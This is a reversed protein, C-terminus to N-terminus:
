QSQASQRHQSRSREAVLLLSLIIIVMPWLWPTNGTGLLDLSDAYLLVGVVIIFLSSLYNRSGASGLTFVGLLVIAFSIVGTPVGVSNLYSFFGLLILIALVTSGLAVGFTLWLSRDQTPQETM